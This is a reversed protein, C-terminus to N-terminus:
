KERFERNIIEKISKELKPLDTKVIEWIIEYDLGFYEHTIRNRLGNIEKWPITSYKRKLEESVNKSAEGIIELNRIVADITKEDASFKKFNKNNVYKKIKDLSNKIDIVFLKSTRKM